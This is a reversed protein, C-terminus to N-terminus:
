EELKLGHERMAIMHAITMGNKFTFQPIRDYYERRETPDPFKNDIVAQYQGDVRLQFKHILSFMRTKLAAPDTYLSGILEKYFAGEQETVAQGSKMRKIDDELYGLSFMFDTLEPPTVIEAGGFAWQNIRTYLGEGGAVITGLAKAVAPEKLKDVIYAAQSQINRTGGIESIQNGMLGKLAFEDYM